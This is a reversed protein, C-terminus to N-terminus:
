RVLHEPHKLYKGTTSVENNAVEEPTGEAVIYGGGDGGDPGMDIVYDAARIVDLHHEILIVTHGAEALNQLIHLLRQIDAFHLGTTPEDLIFVTGRHSTKSLESALKIRQAEGGSLTTAPQGLKLYGLGVDLFAKLKKEIAPINKFFISAEIFSMDLIDAITKGKYAIDLTAANFRKGSCYPCTVHVDALFFMEVRQSGDGKCSECRGGKINFSFRGSSYGKARSEPLRSFLERITSFVGSYTAPSSRPTNGIPKQDVVLVRAISDQGEMNEFACPATKAGHLERALARYLTHIVLSSKGSGSVGTVCTICELPLRATVQKLNHGSAGKITLAGKQFCERHSSGPLVSKGSLYAGTQSGPQRLLGRPPGAYLLEGGMEGAGPGMDVLYDASLITDRDHEVVVVTNGADRLRFLLELLRHHDRVHLGVSPEDLVYLIGSLTSNVQQAIRLRQIEGGSLTTSPRDLNLYGLGLQLIAGARGTIEKLPHECIIRERESLELSLVWTHFQSIPQQLVRDISLGELRVSRASESFRSGNCHPCIPAEYAPDKESEGETNGYFMLTVSEASEKQTQPLSSKGTPSLRGLGKCAPCAGKPHHFSFLSIGPKEFVKNCSPCQLTESFKKEHGQLHHLNVRGSSKNLALELSEMLRQLNEKRLVLRDIVLEFDYFSRRPLAPMPDLEYVKGDFRIRVFGEKRFSNLANPLSSVKLRPLPALVLLRCGEEWEQSVIHAMQPVTYAGLAKDCQRCHTKGLHTFLIRLHDHIGSLTGVTSWPTQRFSKQEIAIAPSLGEISDVDPPPLSQLFLKAQPSLSEMYRRRGEAFLTNFALSSKGSGSVGTIVILRKKPMSLSINKLNHRRAGRIVINEETM